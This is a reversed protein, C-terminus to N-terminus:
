ATGPQIQRIASAQPRLGRHPRVGGQNFLRRTRRSAKRYAQGGNAAFRMASKDVALGVAASDSM